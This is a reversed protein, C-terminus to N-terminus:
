ILVEEGIVYVDENREEIDLIAGVLEGNFLKQLRGLAVNFSPARLEIYAANEYARWIKFKYIEM